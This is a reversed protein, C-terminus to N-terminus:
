GARPLTSLADCAAQWPLLIAGHRAPFSRASAIAALGPWDPLESREAIWYAVNRLALVMGDGPKGIAARAFIAAAAQGIACSHPALGIRAIRGVSDLAIDITLSSGCAASRASGHYPMAPDPPYRALSTALSLVEPTYLAATPAVM